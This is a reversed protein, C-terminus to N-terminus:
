SARRARPQKDTKHPVYNQWGHPMVHVRSGDRLGSQGFLWVRTVERRDLHVDWARACAVAVGYSFPGIWRRVRGLCTVVACYNGPWARVNPFISHETRKHGVRRCITCRQTM